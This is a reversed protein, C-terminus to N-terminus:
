DVEAARKVGLKLVRVLDRLDRAAAGYAGHVTKAARIRELGEITRPGTSTGGHMRCRGNRM